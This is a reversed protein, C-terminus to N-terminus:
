IFNRKSTDEYTLVFNVDDDITIVHKIEDGEIMEMLNLFLSLAEFCKFTVVKPNDYSTNPEKSM